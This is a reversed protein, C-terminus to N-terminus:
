ITRVTEGIVVKNLNSVGVGGILCSRCEGVTCVVCIWDVEVCELKGGCAPVGVRYISNKYSAKGGAVQQLTVTARFESNGVYVRVVDRDVSHRVFERTVRVMAEANKLISREILEVLKVDFNLFRERRHKRARYVTVNHRERLILNNGVCGSVVREVSGGVASVVRGRVLVCDIV